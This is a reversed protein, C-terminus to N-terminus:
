TAPRMNSPEGFETYPAKGTFLWARKIHNDYAEKTKLSGPDTGDMNRAYPVIWVPIENYLRFAWANSSDLSEDEKILGYLSQWGALDNDMFFYVPKGESILIDLKEETIATGLIARAATYGHKVAIAYDFIGESIIHLGEQPKPLGLFVERKKLGLYDKVKPYQKVWTKRHLVSRGTFGYFLGYSYVPFLVRRQSEDYRIDMKVIDAYTLGRERLYRSCIALPYHTRLKADPLDAGGKVNTDEISIEDDWNPLPRSFGSQFEVSEAWLRLKSYDLKRYGGLRSPLGSLRGKIGCSLCKFHSRGDENVTIGFSPNTDTKKAHTWYAFPCSITMWRGNKKSGTFTARNHPLKLSTLLHRINIEDM